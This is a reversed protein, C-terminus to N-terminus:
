GKAAIQGRIEGAANKATHVNVYAKGSELAAISRRPSRRRASRATGARGARAPRHVPGAVGRKGRHIHAAVGNGTLRSFTLKWTLTAPRGTSSTSAPSRARRRVHRGEPASGRHQEELTASVTYTEVAAAPAFAAVVFRSPPAPQRDTIRAEERAKRGETPEAQESTIRRDPASRIASGDAVSHLVCM